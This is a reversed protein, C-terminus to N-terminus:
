IDGRTEMPSGSSRRMQQLRYRGPMRTKQLVSLTPQLVARQRGHGPNKKKPLEKTHGGRDKLAKQRNEYRRNERKRRERVIVSNQHKDIYEWWRRPNYVDADCFKQLRQLDKETQLVSEEEMQTWTSYKNDKTDERYILRSYSGNVCIRKRTWEGTDPFFTGFDKKTLVIRVVPVDNADQKYIEAFLHREHAINKYATVATYIGKQEKVRLYPIKEIAKKKM